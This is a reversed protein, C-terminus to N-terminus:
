WNLEAAMKSYAHPSLSTQIIPRWQLWQEESAVARIAHAFVRYKPQNPFHTELTKMAFSLFFEFNDCLAAPMIHDNMLRKMDAKAQVMDQVKPMMFDEEAKLHMENQKAFEAYAKQVAEIDRAKVASDVDAQFAELAKHAELLQGGISEFDLWKAQLEESAAHHQKLVAFFGSAAPTEEEMNAHINQWRTFDGWRKAFENLNMEDGQSACNSCDQMAGRLVEHGNRMIAFIQPKPAAVGAGELLTPTPHEVKQCISAEPQKQTEPGEFKNLGCGM